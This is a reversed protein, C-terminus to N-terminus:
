PMLLTTEDGFANRNIKLLQAISSGDDSLEYANCIEEIKKRSTNEQGPVVELNYIYFDPNYDAPCPLGKPFLNLTLQTRPSSHVNSLARFKYSHPVREAFFYLAQGIPGLYATRGEAMLLIRDFLEFVESSPQHITCIVTKGAAALNKMVQQFHIKFSNKLYNIKM